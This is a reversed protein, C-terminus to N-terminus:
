KRTPTCRCLPAMIRPEPPPPPPANVHPPPPLAANCQNALRNFRVEHRLVTTGTGTQDRKLIATHNDCSYPPLPACPPRGLTSSSCRGRWRRPHGALGRRMVFGAGASVRESTRGSQAGWMATTVPPWFGVVCSCLGCPLPILAPM